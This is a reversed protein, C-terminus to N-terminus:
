GIGAPPLEQVESAQGIPVFHEPTDSSGAPTVWIRYSMEPDVDFALVGTATSDRSITRDGMSRYGIDEDSQVKSNADSDTTAWSGGDDRVRFDNTPFVTETNQPNTITVVVVLYTGDAEEFDVSSGIRDTRYIGEVVYQIENEGEGVTFQEGVEHTFGSQPTPTATETPTPAETPTATETPTPAETPTATAESSGGDSGSDGGNGGGGGCGALTAALAASCGALVTRRRM